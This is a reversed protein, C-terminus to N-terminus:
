KKINLKSINKVRENNKISISIMILTLYTWYIVSFKNKTLVPAGFSVFVVYINLINLFSAEENIKVYKYTSLLIVLLVGFYLLLGIVGGIWLIELYAMDVTTRNGMGFGQLPANELIFRIISLVGTEEVGFRGATYLQIVDVDKISFLRLFYELGNWKKLIVPLIVSFLILIIIAKINLIKNILKLKNQSLFYFIFLPTALIFAKSVSLIGGLIVGILMINFIFGKNSGKHFLYIWALFGVSYVIGSEFPTSFIGIYRGMGLSRSWVTSNIGESVKPLFLNFVFSIDWFLHFLIFLTNLTLIVLVVFSIKEITKSIRGDNRYPSFATVIFIVSIPMLFNDATALISIFNNYESLQIITVFFFWLLLNIWLFLIYFLPPVKNITTKRKLHIFISMFFLPYILLHEMRIGVSSIYIGFTFIVLLVPIRLIRAGRQSNDIMENGLCSFDEYNENIM